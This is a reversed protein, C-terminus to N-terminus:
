APTEETTTTRVTVTVEYAPNTPEPEGYVARKASTWRIAATVDELELAYLVQELLEELEDEVAAALQDGDVVSAPVICVLAATTDRQHQEPAPALEDVRVMVTPRAPPDIQRAYGILDVTDPLEPALQAIIVARSSM